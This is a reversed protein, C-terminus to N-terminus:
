VDTDKKGHEHEKRQQKDAIGLLQKLLCYVFRFLWIKLIKDM